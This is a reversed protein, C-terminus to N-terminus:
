PQEDRNQEDNSQIGSLVADLVGVDCQYREEKRRRDDAEVARETQISAALDSDFPAYM